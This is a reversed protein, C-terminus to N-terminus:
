ALTALDALFAPTAHASLFRDRSSAAYRPYDAALQALLGGLQESATWRLYQEPLLTKHAEVTFDYEGDTAVADNFLVPAGACL